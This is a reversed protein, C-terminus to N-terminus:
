DTLIGTFSYTCGEKPQLEATLVASDLEGRLIGRAVGAYYTGRVVGAATPESLTLNLELIADGGITTFGQYERTPEPTTCAALLTVALLGAAVIPMRRM